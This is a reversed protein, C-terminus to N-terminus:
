NILLCNSATVCQEGSRIMDCAVLLMMHRCLLVFWGWEFFRGIARATNKDKMNHWREECRGEEWLQHMTSPAESGASDNLGAKDEWSEEAWVETEARSLFYDGGGVRHDPREKLPGLRPGDEATGESAPESAADGQREVRRLSDNGDMQVIMRVKLSPDEKLRHQCPPCTHLM